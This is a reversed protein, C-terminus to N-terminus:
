EPPECLQPSCNPAAQPEGGFQLCCDPPLLGCGGDPFCCPQPPLCISGPGLPLGNAEFCCQPHIEICTGDSLCCAEVPECLQDPAGGPMGGALICCDPSIELCVLGPLCCREPPLCFNGPGLPQGGREMCCERDIEICTMDPLCCGEPPLCVTGPGFPFGGQEQCCVPDIDICTDNQLCCKQPPECQGGPATGGVQQCCIPDTDICTGNPLCCRQAPACISFAGQPTGGQATCCRPDLPVCEGSPLCCAEPECPGPPMAQEGLIDCCRPDTDVCTGDALCCAVPAMCPGDLVAGSLLECCQPDLEMCTGDPLCCAQPLQCMAGPFPQGGAMTCCDTDTDICTGDPLCCKVPPLECLTGAGAAEGNVNECCVPDTEICTGDPLCCREPPACMSGAPGPTGMMMTCCQPDADICTGDPLCCRRPQGCMMGAVSNGNQQMCCVPDVDMCSGDPLCCKTPATCSSGAAGPMGGANNCCAMTTDICTGNPLCCAVTPQCATGNGQYAGGANTCCAMTTVICTGNPLCCAGTPNCTTGPGQPMGGLDIVCCVPDAMMCMGNPLCCAEAPICLGPGDPRGGVELCCRPDLDACTGDAFCCAEVPGCESAAGLWSGGMSACCQEAVDNVCQGDSLCCAGEVCIVGPVPDWNAAAGDIDPCPAINYAITTPAGCAPLPSSCDAYTLVNSGGPLPIVDQGGTTTVVIGGPGPAHSVYSGTTLPIPTLAGGSLRYVTNATYILTGSIPGNTYSDPRVGSVVPDPIVFSGDGAASKCEITSVGTISNFTEVCLTFTYNCNLCTATGAASVPLASCSVGTAGGSIVRDMFPQIDLGDADGDDDMDACLSPSTSLLAAVFGATDGLNVFGDGNMDGRCTPCSPDPAPGPLLHEGLSGGVVVGIARDTVATAESISPLCVSGAAHIVSGTLPYTTVSGASLIEIAPVDTFLTTETISFSADLQRIRTAELIRGTTFFCTVGGTGFEIANPSIETRGDAGGFPFTSSPCDPTGGCQASLDTAPMLLALGLAIAYPAVFASRLSHAPWDRRRSFM